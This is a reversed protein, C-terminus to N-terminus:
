MRFVREMLKEVKKKDQSKIRCIGEKMVIIGIKSLAERAALIQQAIEACDRKKEIMRRIGEIQGILRNIRQNINTQPM